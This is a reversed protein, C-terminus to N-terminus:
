LVIFPIGDFLRNTFTKEPHTGTRHTSVVKSIPKNPNSLKWYGNKSSGLSTKFSIVQVERGWKSLAGQRALWFVFFQFLFHNCICNQNHHKTINYNSINRQIWSLSFCTRFMKITQTALQKYKTATPYSSSDLNNSYSRFESNPATKLTSFHIALRPQM